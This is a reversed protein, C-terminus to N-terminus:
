EPSDGTGRWGMPLARRRVQSPSSRRTRSGNGWDGRVGRTRPGPRFNPRRASGAFEDLHPPGRRWRHVTAVIGYVVRCASSREGTSNFTAMPTGRGGLSRHLNVERRKRPRHCKAFRSPCLSRRQRQNRQPIFRGECDFSQVPPGRALFFHPVGFFHFFIRIPLRLSHSFSQTFGM